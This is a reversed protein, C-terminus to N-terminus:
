SIKALIFGGIILSNMLPVHDITLMTSRVDTGCQSLNPSCGSIIECRDLFHM